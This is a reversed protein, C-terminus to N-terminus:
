ETTNLVVPNILKEKSKQVYDDIVAIMKYIAYRSQGSNKFIHNLPGRDKWALLGQKLADLYEFDREHEAFPLFRMKEEFVKPRETVPVCKYTGLIIGVLTLYDKNVPEISVMHRRLDFIKGPKQGNEDFNEITLRANLIADKYENIAANHYPDSFSFRNEDLNMKKLEDASGTSILMNIRKIEQEIVDINAQIKNYKNSLEKLHEEIPKLQSSDVPRSVSYRKYLSELNELEIKRSQLMSKDKYIDVGTEQISEFLNTNRKELENVIKVNAKKRKNVFEDFETGLINIEKELLNNNIKEIGISNLEVIDDIYDSFKINERTFELELEDLQKTKQRVKEIERGINIQDSEAKELESSMSHQAESIEAQLEGFKDDYDQDTIREVVFIANKRDRIDNTVSDLRELCNKLEKIDSYAKSKEFEHRFKKVERNILESIKFDIKQKISQIKRNYKKTIRMSKNSCPVYGVNELDKFEDL